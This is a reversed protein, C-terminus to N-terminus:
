NGAAASMSFIFKEFCCVKLYGSQIITGSFVLNGIVKMVPISEGTISSEDVAAEGMIVEGDLPIREGSCILIVTGIKVDEVPVSENSEALVATEPTSLM